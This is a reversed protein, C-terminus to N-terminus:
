KKLRRWKSIMDDVRSLIKLSRLNNAKHYGLVLDM